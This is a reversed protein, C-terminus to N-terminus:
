SELPNQPEVVCLIDLGYIEAAARELSCGKSNKWRPALCIADCELLVAIDKGMLASYPLTNDPCVEFPTVVDYGEDELATKLKAAEDAAEKLPRGSIPLSIYLRKKKEM